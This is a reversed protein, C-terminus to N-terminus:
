RNATKKICNLLLSVHTGLIRSACKTPADGKEEPILRANCPRTERKEDSVSCNSSETYNGDSVSCLVDFVAHVESVVMNECM